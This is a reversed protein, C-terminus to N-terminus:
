CSHRISGMPMPSRSAFVSRMRPFQSHHFSATTTPEDRPSADEANFYPHVNLWHAACKSLLNRGGYSYSLIHNDSVGAPLKRFDHQLGFSHALEHLATRKGILPRDFPIYAISAGGVYAQGGGRWYSGQFTVDAAIFYINRSTDFRDRIERMVRPFAGFTGNYHSATGQGNVRHVLIRGSDDTELRFTKRGFGHGEMQDAFFRQADRMLSDLRTDMGQRPERDSPLFYIVRVTRPEGVNVDAAVKAASFQQDQRRPECAFPLCSHVGDGPAPSAHVSLPSLLALFSLRTISSASRTLAFSVSNVPLARCNPSVM